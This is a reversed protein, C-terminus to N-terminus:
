LARRILTLDTTRTWEPGNRLGLPFRLLDYRSFQMNVDFMSDSPFLRSVDLWAGSSAFSRASPMRGIPETRFSGIYALTWPLRLGSGAHSSTLIWNKFSKFRFIEIEDLVSFYKKLCSFGLYEILGNGRM